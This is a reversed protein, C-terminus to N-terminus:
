TLHVEPWINGCYRTGGTMSPSLIKTSM